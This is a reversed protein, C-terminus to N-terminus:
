EAVLVGRYKMDGSGLVRFAEEIGKENMKFENIMPKIGHFASFELMERHTQRDAVLSGQIRLAALIVPMVPIDLNGFSVTLPYIAGGPAMLPLYLKWDPMESTCVLLHDVPRCQLEGEKVGKMAYFEKAGLRMAEERKSDTGSFVVVECGFARAYQIALHGLGGVGLVGVRETSKVGYLQLASFVTAGGCQLPAAHANDIGEPIKYVFGEHWVAHSGMSGQDLDAAGYMKREPCLTDAGRLCQKCHGCSFHNYGWGVRDGTAHLTVASGVQEVVGAGEHGLGQSVHKFHVDTGCLGSHTIRVLVEHPHIPRSTTAKTIAGNSSGKYVTFDVM